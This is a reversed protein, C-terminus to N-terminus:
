IKISKVFDIHEQSMPRGTFNLTLFNDVVDQDTATEPLEGYALSSFSLFRRQADTSLMNWNNGHSDPYKNQVFHLIAHFRQKGDVCDDNFGMGNETIEQQIREWSNKRFLFKGIEIGQYISEILLQNEELTWVLGRQYHERVGDANIIYPNFNIGGYNEGRLQMENFDDSRRGYGARFLISSIEQSQFIVSRKERGFPNAGCEDFTPYVYKLDLVAYHSNHQYHSDVIDKLAM